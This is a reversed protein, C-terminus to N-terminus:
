RNPPQDHEGKTAWGKGYLTMEFNTNDAKLYM